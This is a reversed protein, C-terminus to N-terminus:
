ASRGFPNDVHKWRWYEGRRPINGEGLSLRMLELIDATDEATAARIALEAPM